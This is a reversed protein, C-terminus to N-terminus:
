RALLTRRLTDLATITAIERSRLRGGVLDLQREAAPQGPLALGAILRVPPDHPGSEAPAPPSALSTTSLGVDAGLLRRVALAMAGAAGEGQAPIGLARQLGEGDPSVVAGAFWRGAEPVVGIRAAILGATFSEAVALRLGAAALMAGVADEMTEGDVGFVAPGLVARIAEEEAALARRAEGEDAAKVTLRVKIGEIGSALFAITPVGPGTAELAELRPTLMEALRSEGFGWTRLTRSLIVAPEGARRHLEPLVVRELMEKMEDPVGPVAFVVKEGAPCILGPATGLRQPIISAGEPVDAQRLNSAPMGRGRQAFVAQLLRLAEPDRRLPVGLVEALAERTVDDHTPGLGGCVIVADARDLAARMVLAIRQVNDGVKTQQLCDIGSRALREGIWASNTDVIQGILLETGVAVVEARLARRTHAGAKAM